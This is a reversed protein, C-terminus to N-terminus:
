KGRLLDSVHDYYGDLDWAMERLAAAIPALEREMDLFLAIGETHAMTVVKKAKVKLATLKQHSIPNLVFKHEKLRKHFATAREAPDAIDLLTEEEKLLALYINLAGRAHISKSSDLLDHSFWPTHVGFRRVLVERFDLDKNENIFHKRSAIDELFENLKRFILQCIDDQPRYTLIAKMAKKWYAESQVDDCADFGRRAKGNASLVLPCFGSADDMADEIPISDHPSIQIVSGSGKWVPFRAEVFRYLLRIALEADLEDYSGQHYFSNRVAHAYTLLSIDGEDIWGNDHAFDLLNKYARSVGFRVKKNHQRVGSYWTTQDHYLAARAKRNLQVEIINDLLIVAFRRQLPNKALAYRNAERLQLFVQNTIKM